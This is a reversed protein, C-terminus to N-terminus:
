YTYSNGCCRLKPDGIVNAKCSCVAKGDVENCLAGAGCVNVGDCPHETVENLTNKVIEVFFFRM